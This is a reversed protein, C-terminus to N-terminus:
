FKILSIVFVHLNLALLASLKMENHCQNTVSELRACMRASRIQSYICHMLLFGVKGRKVRKWSLTFLKDEIYVFMKCRYLDGFRRMYLTVKAQREIGNSRTLRKVHRGSHVWWVMVDATAPHMLLLPPLRTCSVDNERTLSQLVSFISLLRLCSIVLTQRTM